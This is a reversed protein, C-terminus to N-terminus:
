TYVSVHSQHPHGIFISRSHFEVPHTYANRLLFAKAVLLELIAIHFLNPRLYIVQSLFLFFINTRLSLEIFIQSSGSKTTAGRLIIYIYLIIGLVYIINYKYTTIGARM